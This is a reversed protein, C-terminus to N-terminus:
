RIFKAVFPRVAGGDSAITVLYLGQPLSPLYFLDGVFSYDYVVQGNISTILARYKDSQNIQMTSSDTWVWSEVLTQKVGNVEIATSCSFSCGWGNSVEITYTGSV